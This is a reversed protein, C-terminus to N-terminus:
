TGGHSRRMITDEVCDVPKEVLLDNKQLPEHAEFRHAILLHGNLIEDLCRQLFSSEIDATEAGIGRLDACM